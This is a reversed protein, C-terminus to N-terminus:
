AFNATQLFEQSRVRRDLWYQITINLMERVERELPPPVALEPLAGVSETRHLLRLLKLAPLSLPRVIVDPPGCQACLTGGAGAAFRHRDPELQEGCEVCHYLEPLFGSLGLLQLDFYRLALDPDPAAGLAELTHVALSFLEANAFSLASFGDILEAVYLGRASNEYGSKVYPFADVVEAETVHDMSRGRAVSVRVLTLPELHGILKSTLRQAGRALLELKGHERTYIVSLLDAERV